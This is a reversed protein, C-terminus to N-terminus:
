SLMGHSLANVEHKRDMEVVAIEDYRSIKVFQYEM